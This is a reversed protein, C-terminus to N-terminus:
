SGTPLHREPLSEAPGVLLVGGRELPLALVVLDGNRVSYRGQRALAARVEPNRFFVEDDVRFQLLIRNGKRLAYAEAPAGGVRTPWRSLVRTGPWPLPVAEEDGPLPPVPSPLRTRSVQQYEALVDRVMPVAAPSEQPGPRSVLLLALLIAAAWGGHQWLRRAVRRGHFTPRGAARRSPGALKDGSEDLGAASDPSPPIRSLRQHLLHQRQVDQRCAECGALHAEVLRTEEPDLEGDVYGALLDQLRLHLERLAPSVPNGEDNM